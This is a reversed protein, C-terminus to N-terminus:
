CPGIGCWVGLFTANSCPNTGRGEHPAEEGEKEHHMLKQCSRLGGGCAAELGVGKGRMHVLLLLLGVRLLLLM